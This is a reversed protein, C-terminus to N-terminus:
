STRKFRRFVKLAPSKLLNEWEKDTAKYRIFVIGQESDEEEYTKVYKKADADFGYVVLEDKSPFKVVYNLWLRDGAISFVYGGKMKRIEVSDPHLQMSSPSDPALEEMEYTVVSDNFEMKNVYFQMNEGASEWTGKLEKPFTALPKSKAPQAKDFAAATCSQILLVLASLWWISKM